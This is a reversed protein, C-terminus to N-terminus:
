GGWVVLGVLRLTFERPCSALVFFIGFAALLPGSEVHQRRGGERKRYVVCFSPFFPKFGEMTWRVAPTVPLERQHRM